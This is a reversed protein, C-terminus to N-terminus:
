RPNLESSAAGNMARTGATASRTNWWVADPVATSTVAWPSPATSM